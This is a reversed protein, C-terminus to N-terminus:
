SRTMHAEPDPHRAALLALACALVALVGYGSTIQFLSFTRALQGAVLSPLAAGTYSIAYVVSLLGAREAPTATSLLGRLSGAFALGQAVGAVFGAALFPAVSGLRLTGVLAAVALAFGTMGVRQAAPASFRGSLSAGLSAPAIYSAYVLAAVLANSTGLQTATVTPAFANYYGGLAWTSVFVAAAVPLLRRARPPVVLQPRLSALAGPGRVVTDRSAVVLGASVVAIAIAVVYALERPHPAYQVLAGAGLAGITLGVMPAGATVAAALRRRPATDVVYAAIASSAIGAGLGHLVRGGVLPAVGGGGVGLLLLCGAVMLALAAISVLQRGLFDSLRGFVLLGTVAAVFYGVASLSLDSKSLGDETRYLEYLPIPAASAVFVAAFALSAAPFALWAPARVGASAREAVQGSV